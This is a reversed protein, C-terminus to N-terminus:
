VNEKKPAARLEIWFRSGRDPESEVGVKGGMREVVKRVIALGIGTGEYQNDLKQFMAFLRPQAHKPIGIGNDEVWIRAFSDKTESWVRVRPRVGPAVFKVANGLLNSFCQTLLSENGLVIPLSGEILINASEAQLNPYTDVLGRMLRSLDVTQLPFEQLAAKTYNLADNILNDLRAAGIVIRECYTKTDSSVSSTSLEDMLLQAFTGMARLPARMDHAISYSFSQLENVTEQLKATREAVTAELDAAHLLLKRQADRLKEETKKQDTIDRAIKAGGIVKGAADKVPSCTISVPLRDGSKTLRVTECHTSQGARLRLLILDEEGVNEPPIIRQIPQGIMEAASYGFLAQAGPNWSTVIGDLSKSIVADRSYEVIAALRGQREESKRRDTIDRNIAVFRSFKGDSTRQALATVDAWIPSGDKRNLEIELRLVKGALVREVFLSRQEPSVTSGLLAHSQKGLAEEATYGFMREAGDNWSTVRLEEDLSYIGDNVIDLVQAQEAIKDQARKIQDIDQVVSTAGIIQGSDSRLPAASVRMWRDHGDDDTFVMELGPSVIDGGLARKGPWNEPPIAKRDVDYVRWKGIREPRTSPIGNPVFKDMLANSIIWQGNTDMVGLGVPLQKLVASLLAESERLADRSQEIEKRAEVQESIDRFYCVLGYRGDPLTIRDLRWEYYETKQRDIRYETREPAVFPEGTKLTRRFIRVVEDAYNKEWLLHIIEDFERGLVGGPIDGFVPIAVPNVQAIRFDADVLYVGLPARNILTELQEGRHRREEEGRKHETFDAFAGIVQRVEGKEDFLPAVSGYVVKTTGDPFTLDHEFNNWPQATRAVKQMPLDEPLVEVGNVRIRLGAPVEPKGATVSANIDEPLGFIRYAAANGRIESCDRNGIWVGVPLLEQLTTMEDLKLKLESNLQQIQDEHKAVAGVWWWLLACFIAALALTLLSTGMATDFWGARQGRIRLWGLILPLGVIFPLSRRALLGAASSARLTRVPEYEPVSALIGLALALLITATQMAIGTFRAIAFLPDAGSVYGMLALMSIACVAIGLAPVTRRVGGSGSAILVLGMGIVTYSTSAPPGMRGPSVAAKTGWTPSILMTDIGLNVGSFHQFLTAGGLLMVILGLVSGVRAASRCSLNVLILAAGSCLAAFAANPFMSIGSAPWDTFRPLGAFWGVLTVGGGILAYAAFGVVSWRGASHVLKKDADM